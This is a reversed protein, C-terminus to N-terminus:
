ATSIRSVAAGMVTEYAGLLTADVSSSGRAGTVAERLLEGIDLLWAFSIPSPPSSMGAIHENGVLRNNGRGSIAPAEDMQVRVAGSAATSFPPESAWAILSPWDIAAVDSVTLMFRSVGLSSSVSDFLCRRDDVHPSGSASDSGDGRLLSKVSSAAEALTRSCPSCNAIEGVVIIVFSFVVVRGVASIRSPAIVLVLALALVLV